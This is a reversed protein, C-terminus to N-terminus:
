SLYDQVDALLQKAHLRASAEIQHDYKGSKVIADVEAATDHIEHNVVFCIFEQRLAVEIEYEASELRRRIESKAMHGRGQLRELWVKLGPPLLFVVLASLKFDHFRLAGQIDVEHLATQGAQQAKIIEDVHMGSVQQRHIVAAELYQGALLGDLLEEESKFWYERGNQELIGNNERPDRTTDSVIFHYKDSKLLINILSNRGSATTGSLVVFKTKNLLELVSADPKYEGLVADFETLHRLLHKQDEM